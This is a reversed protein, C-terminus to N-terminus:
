SNLFPERSVTVCITMLPIAHECECCRAPTLQSLHSIHSISFELKRVQCRTAGICSPGQTGSWCQAKIPSEVCDAGVISAALAACRACGQIRSFGPPVAGGVGSHGIPARDRNTTIRVRPAFARDALASWARFVLSSRPPSRTTNGEGISMAELAVQRWAVQLKCDSQLCLLGTARCTSNM